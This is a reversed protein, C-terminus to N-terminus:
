QGSLKSIGTSARSTVPIMATKAMSNAADRLVTSDYLRGRAPADRRRRAKPSDPTRAVSVAVRKVGEPSM